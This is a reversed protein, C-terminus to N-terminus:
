LANHGKNDVASPNERVATLSFSDADARTRIQPYSLADASYKMM